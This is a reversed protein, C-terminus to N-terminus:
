IHILSLSNGMSFVYSTDVYPCSIAHIGMTGSQAFFAIGTKRTAMDFETGGMGWLKIKDINNLFGTCNPGMVAMDYKKAIRQLAEEAARGEASGEESYGAAVVIAAGVGLAGAQELVPPIADRPIALMVCDPVEPLDALSAYTKKGLVMSSKQNVFYVQAHGTNQLANVACYNGFTGMRENAGVIAVAKPKLLRELNMKDRRERIGRKKQLFNEPM